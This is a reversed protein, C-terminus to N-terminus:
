SAPTQSGSVVLDNAAGIIVDVTTTRKGDASTAQLTATGGTGPTLVLGNLTGPDETQSAIALTAGASPTDLDIVSGDSLLMADDIVFTVPGKAPDFVLPQATAM